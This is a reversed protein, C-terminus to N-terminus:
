WVDHETYRSYIREEEAVWRLKVVAAGVVTSLVVGVGLLWSHRVWPVDFVRPVWKRPDSNPM